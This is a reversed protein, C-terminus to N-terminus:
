QAPQELALKAVLRVAPATEVLALDAEYDVALELLGIRPDLPGEALLAAVYRERVDAQRVVAVAERYFARAAGDCPIALDVRDVAGARAVRCVIEGGGNNHRFAMELLENLASSLLNAYRVPDSRKQSVMRAVYTAMRSCHRWDLAFVETGVALEFLTEFEADGHHM